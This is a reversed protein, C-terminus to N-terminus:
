EGGAEADFGLDAEETVEGGARERDLRNEGSVPQADRLENGRVAIQRKPGDVSRDDRCGLPECDGLDRRDVASVEANNPWRV